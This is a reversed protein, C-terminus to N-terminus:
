QITEPLGTFMLAGSNILQVIPQVSAKGPDICGGPHHLEIEKLPISAVGHSFLRASRLSYWTQSM